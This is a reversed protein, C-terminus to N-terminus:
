YLIGFLYLSGTVANAATAVDLSIVTAAAYAKLTAPTASPVPMMLICDGDAGLNDTNTTGVFDSASAGQGITLVGSDGADGSVELIAHSLVCTKGAPVTFLTQIDADSMDTISTTSLLSLAFRSSLIKKEKNAASVDAVVFYDGAAPTAALEDLDVMRKYAVGLKSM